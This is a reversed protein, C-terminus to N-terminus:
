KFLNFVDLESIDKNMVLIIGVFTLFIGIIQTWSYKEGFIFLSTGILVFISITKLLISNVLPTNYQKDLEFLFLSSTIILLSIIFICMFHTYELKQYNALMRKMSSKNEFFLFILISWILICLTILYFYERSELTLLVHKRLYPSMAKFFTVGILYHYM